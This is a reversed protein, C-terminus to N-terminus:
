FENFGRKDSFLYESLLLFLEGGDGASFLFMGRWFPLLM